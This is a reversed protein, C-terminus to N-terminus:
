GLRERLAELDPVELDPRLARARGLDGYGPLLVAVAGAAKAAEVDQPGDGVLWADPPAVGGLLRLAEHVMAPDPKCTPLSDGGLVAGFFPTIGLGDLIRRVPAEPKNSVVAMPIGRDRAAELFELAEPLLRTEEVCHELYFARWGPVLTRVTEADLGTCRELLRHLGDGVHVQVAPAPMPGWGLLSRTRNVARAIDPLTDALTGDLDLLLARPSTGSKRVEGTAM